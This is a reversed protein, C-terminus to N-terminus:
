EPDKIFVERASFEHAYPHPVRGAPSRPGTGTISHLRGMARSKEMIRSIIGYGGRDRYVVWGVSRM